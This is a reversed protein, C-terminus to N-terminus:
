SAERELRAVAIETKAKSRATYYRRRQSRLKGSLRPLCARTDELLLNETEGVM